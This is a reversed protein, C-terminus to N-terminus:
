GKHLFGWILESVGLCGQGEVLSGCGEVLIPVTDVIEVHFLVTCIVNIKVNKKLICGWVGWGHVKKLWTKCMHSMTNRDPNVCEGDIKFLGFLIGARGQFSM